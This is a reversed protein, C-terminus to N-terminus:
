NSKISPSLKTNSENIPAPIATTAITSQANAIPKANAAAATTSAAAAAAFSSSTPNTAATAAATITTAKVFSLYSFNQKLKAINQNPNFFKFGLIFGDFDWLM